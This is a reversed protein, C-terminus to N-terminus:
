ECIAGDEDEWLINYNEQLYYSMQYWIEVDRQDKEPRRLPFLGGKGSASYRRECFNTLTKRIFLETNEDFSSDDLDSLGLNGMMEWFFKKLSYGDDIGTVTIETLRKALAICMELISCPEDDLEYSGYKDADPNEEFFEDRLFVGDKARNSDRAIDSYFPVRSLIRALKRYCPQGPTFVGIKDCLWRFYRAKISVATTFRTKIHPM